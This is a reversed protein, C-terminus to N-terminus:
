NGLKVKTLARAYHYVLAAVIYPLDLLQARLEETYPLTNGAEDELDHFCNVIANCYARQGDQTGLNFQAQAEISLANFTTRLTDERAGDNSPVLITVDHTFTLKQAIKM